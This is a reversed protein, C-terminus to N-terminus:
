SKDRDIDYLHCFVIHGSAIEIKCPREKRCIEMAHKCRPHFRCGSPADILNPIFGPIVELREVNQDLKPIAKLLGQTYPHRPDDFIAITDGYEVIHGLYMVAVKQCNEAVIGLDHTVIILSTKETKKLEKLRDEM